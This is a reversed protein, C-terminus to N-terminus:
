RAPFSAQTRLACHVRCPHRVPGAPVWKYRPLFFALVAQHCRPARTLHQESQAASVVAAANVDCSRKVSRACARVLFIAARALQAYKELRQATSARGGALSAGQAACFVATVSTACPLPLTTKGLMLPVAMAWGM